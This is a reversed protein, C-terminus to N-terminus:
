LQGIEEGPGNYDDRADDEYIWIFYVRAQGSSCAGNDNHSGNVQTGVIKLRAYYGGMPTYYVRKKLDSGTDSRITTWTTGNTSRQLYLDIDNPVPNSYSDTFWWISAKLRDVAESLLQGNKVEVIVEDSDGVCVYGSLRGWPADMGVDDFRRVRTRGAGWYFNYGYVQGNARDGMELMYAKQVGPLLFLSDDKVELM